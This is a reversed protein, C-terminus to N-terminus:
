IIQIRDLFNKLIQDGQEPGFRPLDNRALFNRITSKPRQLVQAIKAPTQYEYHSLIYDIEEQTLRKRDIMNGM